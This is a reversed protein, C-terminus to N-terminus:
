IKPVFPIKDRSSAQTPLPVYVRLDRQMSQNVSDEYSLFIEDCMGVAFRIGNARQAAEKTRICYYRLDELFHDSLASYLYLTRLRLALADLDDELRMLQAMVRYADETEYRIQDTM